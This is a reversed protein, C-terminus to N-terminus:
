LMAAVGSDVTQWARHGFFIAMAVGPPLLYWWFVNRLLWIQHEVQALSNEIQARVRDGAFAERRRQRKRDALLFAAIWLFAPVSLYWSWPLMWRIGMFIWVPVMVLAVGIERVDRYFITAAFSRHNRQIEKLLQDADVTLRAQAGEAQWAKQMEDFNM